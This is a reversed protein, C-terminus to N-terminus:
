WTFELFVIYDLIFFIRNIGLFGIFKIRLEFVLYGKFIWRSKFGWSNLLVIGVEIVVWSYKM